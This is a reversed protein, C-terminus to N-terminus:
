NKPQGGLDAIIGEAIRETLASITLFPNVGITTPVISGDTVYLGDFTGGDQSFVQGLHNVLGTAATEGMPCGGLPHPTLLTHFPSFAWIPNEIFTAGLKTAHELALALENKFVNQSGVGPWTITPEGTADLEVKGGSNDQGMILYMLTYNLAGGELRPDLAGFDRARREFERVNDFFNTPDTDKGIFTAFTARAADIYILPLSLDEFTTREALPRDTNYKVRSVISPGPFLPPAPPPAPQIRRARDSEPHAGWGLANTRHDSNYAFAIFDGNGSFRTGLTAPLQLGNAASRLLIASSGMAGASVVLARRATISGEETGATTRHKYFVSYGGQAPAAVHDVEVQTFIHVGAAKALALYNTDLTNKAGVNCGTICDGCNICKRQQVGASNEGEFEFNVAIDCLDFDAGPKGQAGLQLAQVKSLSQGQPHRGAHLTARVRTFLTDLAGSDRADRIAQPWQPNDFVEHDPVIAVNANILSTGGLGSAMWAGIDPGIRFDYLGLPNVPNRLAGAGAQLNDPFESPLWERGRELVCISPKADPWQAAALRAATIAGGYGSGIIVVDYGDPLREEWHNALPTRQVTYM